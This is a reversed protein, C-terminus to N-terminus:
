LKKTLSTRQVVSLSLHDEFQSIVKFSLNRIIIRRNREPKLFNQVQDKEEKEREQTSSMSLFFAFIEHFKEELLYL